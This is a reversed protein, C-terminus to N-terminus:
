QQKEKTTTPRSEVYNEDIQSVAEYLILTAPIVFRGVARFFPIFSFALLAGGAVALIALAIAFLINGFTLRNCSAGADRDSNLATIYAPTYKRATKAVEDSVGDFLQAAQENFSPKFLVGTTYFFNDYVTTFNAAEDCYVLPPVYGPAACLQTSAFELADKSILARPLPPCPPFIETILENLDSLACTPIGVSGTIPAPLTCSPSAGYALWPTGYIIILPVVMMALVGGGPVISLFLSVIGAFLLSVVFGDFLGIGITSRCLMTVPWDCTYFREILRTATEKPAILTNCVTKEAVTLLSGLLDRVWGKTDESLNLGALADFTCPQPNNGGTIIVLFETYDWLWPWNVSWLRELIFRVQRQKTTWTDTGLPNVFIQTMSADFKSQIDSLTGRGTGTYFVTSSDYIQQGALVADNFYTCKTCVFQETEDCPLIGFVPLTEPDLVIDLPFTMKTGPTWRESLLAFTAAEPDVPSYELRVAIEGVDMRRAASAFKALAALRRERHRGLHYTTLTDGQLSGTTGLIADLPAAYPEIYSNIKKAFTESVKSTFAPVVIGAVNWFTSKEVAQISRKALKKPPEVINQVARQITPWLESRLANVHHAGAVINPLTNTHRKLARRKRSSPVRDTTAHQVIKGVAPDDFRNTFVAHYAASLDRVTAPIAITEPMDDIPASGTELHDNYLLKGEIIANYVTRQASVMHETLGRGAMRWISNMLTEKEMQRYIYSTTVGSSVHTGFCAVFFLDEETPSELARIEEVRKESGALTFQHILSACRSMDYAVAGVAPKLTDTSRKRGDITTGAKRDILRILAPDCETVDAFLPCGDRRALQGTQNALRALDNETLHTSTPVYRETTGHLNWTCSYRSDAGYSSLRDLCCGYPVTPCFPKLPFMQAGMCALEEADCQDALLQAMTPESPMFPEFLPPGDVDIQNLMFPQLMTSLPKVENDCHGPGEFEWGAQICANIAPQYSISLVCGANTLQCTFTRGLAQIVLKVIFLQADKIGLEFLTSGKGSLVQIIGFGIELVFILFSQLFGIVTTLTLRFFEGIAIFATSVPNGNEVCNFFVGIDGIAWGIADIVPTTATSILEAFKGISPTTIIELIKAFVDFLTQPILNIARSLADGLSNILQSAYSGTVPNPGSCAANAPFILSVPICLGSNVVYPSWSLISSVGFQAADLISQGGEAGSGGNVTSIFSTFTAKIVDAFLYVVETSIGVLSDVFNAICCFLNSGNTEDANTIPPIKFPFGSGSFPLCVTESELTNAASRVTNTIQAVLLKFNGIPVKENACKSLHVTTFLEDFHVFLDIGYLLSEQVFSVAAQILPRSILCQPTNFCLASVFDGICLLPSFITALTRRFPNNFNNGTSLDSDPFQILIGSPLARYIVSCRGSAVCGAIFSAANGGALNTYGAPYSTPARRNAVIGECISKFTKGAACGTVTASFMDRDAGGRIVCAVTIVKDGWVEKAYFLPNPIKGALAQGVFRYATGIVLDIVFTTTRVIADRVARVFCPVTNIINAVFNLAQQIVQGATVLTVQEGTLFDAHEVSLQEGGSVRGLPTNLAGALVVGLDKLFLVMFDIYGLAVDVYKVVVDTIPVLSWYNKGAQTSFVIDINFLLEGAVRVVSSAVDLPFSFVLSFFFKQPLQTNPLPFGLLDSLGSRVGNLVAGPFSDLFQTAGQHAANFTDLTSNLSPRYLNAGFSGTPNNARNQLTFIIPRLFIQTPAVYFLAISSNFAQAFAPETFPATLPGFVTQDLPQCSCALIGRLTSIAAGFKAGSETFDPGILFISSRTNPPSNPPLVALSLWASLGKGFASGSMGFLVIVSVVTQFSCSIARIAAGTTMVKPLQALANVFPLGVSSIFTLITPWPLLITRILPGLFNNWTQAWIMFVQPYFKLEVAILAGLFILAIFIPLNQVIAIGLTKTTTGFLSVFSVVGDSLADWILAFLLPFRLPKFHPAKETGGLPAAAGAPQESANVKSSVTTPSQVTIVTAGADNNSAAVSKARAAMRRGAQNTWIMAILWLAIACLIVALGVYVFALGFVTLRAINAPTFLSAVAASFVVFSSM